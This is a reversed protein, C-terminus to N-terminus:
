SWFRHRDLYDVLLRGAHEIHTTMAARAGAGDGAALADRVQEHEVISLVHGEASDGIARWVYDKPFYAQLDGLMRTLRDNGALRHIVAHFRENATTIRANFAAEDEPRVRDQELDAMARGMEDQASQLEDIEGPAADAALEAAFGELEARLAYVELLERRTRVRVTAGKNPVLDVLNQAQLKRLAERIPTRSVGFRACLDDQQLHTGPPYEGGLIATQIRFAIEDTLSTVLIRDSGPVPMPDRGPVAMARLMDWRDRLQISVDM